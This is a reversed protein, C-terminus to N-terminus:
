RPWEGEDILRLQGRPPWWALVATAGALRAALSLAARDAPGFSKYPGGATSKVEILMPRDGDRMAALDCVGYTTGKLVIWDHDRLWDAVKRERDRGAKGGRM